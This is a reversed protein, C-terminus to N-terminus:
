CILSTLLERNSHMKYKDFFLDKKGTTYVSISYFVIPESGSSAKTVRYVSEHDVTVNMIILSGNPYIDFEGSQFGEGSKSGDQYLLLPKGEGVHYWTIALFGDEFACYIIGRRGVEIYQILPCEPAVSM